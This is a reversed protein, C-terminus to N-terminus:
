ALGTMKRNRPPKRIARAMSFHFRCRRRAKAMRARVLPSGAMTTSATIATVAKRLRQIELVAAVM